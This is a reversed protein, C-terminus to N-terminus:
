VEQANMKKPTVLLLYYAEGTLEAWAQSSLFGTSPEATHSSVKTYLLGWRKYLDYLHPQVIYLICYVVYWRLIKIIDNYRSIANINTPKLLQM